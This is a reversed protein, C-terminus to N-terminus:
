KNCINSILSVNINIQWLSFERLWLYKEYFELIPKYKWLKLKLNDWVKKRLTAHGKEQETGLMKGNGPFATYEYQM